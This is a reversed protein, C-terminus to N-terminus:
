DGVGMSYPSTMLEVLNLMQGNDKRRMLRPLFLDQKSLHTNDWAPLNNTMALFGPGASYNRVHTTPGYITKM